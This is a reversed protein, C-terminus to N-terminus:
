VRGGAQVGAQAGLWWLTGLRAGADFDLLGLAAGLALHDAPPFDFERQAGVVRLVAAEEEGGVPAQAAGPATLRPRNGRAPLGTLRGLVHNLRLVGSSSLPPGHGLKVQQPGPPSCPSIASVIRAGRACCAANV